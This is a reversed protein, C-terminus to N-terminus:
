KLVPFPVEREEAHASVEIFTDQENSNILLFQVGQGAYDKHLEVLTPVYLNALPCETGVFVVVFAKRDKFGDLTVPRRHIDKLMFNPVTAGLPSVTKEAFPASSMLTLVALALSVLM